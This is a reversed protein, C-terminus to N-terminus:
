LSLLLNARGVPGYYEKDNKPHNQPYYCGCITNVFLTVILNSIRLAIIVLGLVLLFVDLRYIWRRSNVPPKNSHQKNESSPPQKSMTLTVTHNLIKALQNRSIIGGNGKCDDSLPVPLILLPPSAM